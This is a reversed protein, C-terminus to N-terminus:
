SSTSRARAIPPSSARGDVLAPDHVAISSRSAAPGVAITHSIVTTELYTHLAIMPPEAIEAPDHRPDLDGAVVASTSPYVTVLCGAWTKTIPRHMPGSMVHRVQAHRRVVAEFREIGCLGPLCAPDSSIHEYGADIRNVTAAGRSASSRSRRLSIRATARARPADRTRTNPETARPSAVSVLSM